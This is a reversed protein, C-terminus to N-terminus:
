NSKIQNTIANPLLPQQQEYTEDQTDWVLQFIIGGGTERESKRERVGCWVV